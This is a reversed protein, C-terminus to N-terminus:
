LTEVCEFMDEYALCVCDFACVSDLAFINRASTFTLLPQRDTQRDQQITHDHSMCASSVISKIRKVIKKAAVRYYPIRQNYVFRDLTPMM